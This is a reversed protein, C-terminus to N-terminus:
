TDLLAQPTFPKTVYYLAGGVGGRLRDMPEGRATVMIVPVAALAADSKIEDLVSWGDRGPMMVDLLVLDLPQSRLVELAEDGDAALAVEHGGRKLTVDLLALVDPDDDVALIRSM